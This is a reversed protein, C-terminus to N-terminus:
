CGCAALDAVLADLDARAELVAGDPGLGGATVAFVLLRDDRTVITGALASVQPLSGTKARVVGVGAAARDQVFRDDLTGTYGAIPLGGLVSQYAPHRGQAGAVLTDAVVRVPVASGDSLGSTDALRAGRTDIGYDQELRELVWSNVVGQGSGVGDRVAAQRALQEVMANDSTALALSLVDRLPASEVRGLVQAGATDTSETRKVPGSTVPVGARRLAEAFAQAAVQPPDAPSPAGPLARDQALGLMTVRGAYGNAVWFDTWGPAVDSGAAYRTDLLLRVPGSRSSDALAAKTQAALDALGARGVVTEPNGRGPSLLLDGGAVLVLDGPRNGAVVTTPFTSAPDLASMVAAATLLKVTSAPTLPDDARLNMLHEGTTVDRVTMSRTSPAGLWRSAWEERVAARLAASDPALGRQVPIGVPDLSTVPRPRVAAQAAVVSEPVSSGPASDPRSDQAQSPAAVLAGLALLTVVLATWGRRGRPATLM